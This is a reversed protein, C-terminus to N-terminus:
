GLNLMCQIVLCNHLIYRNIYLIDDEIARPFLNSLHQLPFKISYSTLPDDVLNRMKAMM